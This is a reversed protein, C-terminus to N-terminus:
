PISRISCRAATCSFRRRRSCWRASTGCSCGWRRWCGRREWAMRSSRCSAPAAMRMDDVALHKKIVFFPWCDTTVFSMLLHFLSSLVVTVPLIELPFVVRNVYNANQLILSPSGARHMGRFRQFRDPECVADARFRDENGRRLPQHVQRPLHVQFGGHLNGAAPDSQPLALAIGLRSGRYRGLVERRTLQAISTATVSHNRSIFELPGRWSGPAAPRHHPRDGLDPIAPPLAISM